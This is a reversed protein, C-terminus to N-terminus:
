LLLGIRSDLRVYILETICCYTAQPVYLSSSSPWSCPPGEYKYLGHSEVDLGISVACLCLNTLDVCKKIGAGDSYQAYPRICTSAYKSQHSKDVTSPRSWAAQM